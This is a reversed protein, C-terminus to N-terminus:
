QSLRILEQIKLTAKRGLRAAQLELVLGGGNTLDLVPAVTCLIGSIGTRDKAGKLLPWFQEAQDPSLALRLIRPLEQTASPM